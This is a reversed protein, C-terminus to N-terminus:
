LVNFLQEKVKELEDKMQIVLKQINVDNAKSGITNIERGIEQAIFGLKKGVPTNAKINEMFYRCHNQLRVQEETIDIKELYYILEEEFRNSDVAENNLNDAFSQKLKNRINKLRGKEFPKIKKQLETIQKIHSRIDKELAKGEQKRFKILDDVAKRVATFIIKWEKDDIGDNDTKLTDPLRMITQVLQEPTNIELEASIEKLQSYYSKVAEKNIEPASGNGTNEFLLIFDIKGRILKKAIENRIALEKEKYAGPIRISIDLQKSNLSKIEITIKKNEPECLTKGFGTMSTLMPQKKLHRFYKFNFFEM